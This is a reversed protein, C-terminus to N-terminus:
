QKVEPAFLMGAAKDVDRPAFLMGNKRYEFICHCNTTCEEEGIADLTGIPQWGKGAQELCGNCHDASGLVRREEDYGQAQMNRRIVQEFTGWAAREYLKMRVLLKGNLWANPNALIDKAFNDLYAYQKKVLSGVYGWQAPTVNEIGGMAIAAAERHMLRIYERMAAQWEPVTIDGNILQGALANLNM